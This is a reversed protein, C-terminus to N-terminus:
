EDEPQKKLGKKYQTTTMHRNPFKGKAAGKLGKILDEKNLKVKAPGYTGAYPNKARAM